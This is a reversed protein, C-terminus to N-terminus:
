FIKLMINTMFEDRQVILYIDVVSSVVKRVCATDYSYDM